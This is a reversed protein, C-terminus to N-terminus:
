FTTPSLTSNKVLWRAQQIATSRRQQPWRASEFPTSRSIPFTYWESTTDAGKQINHLRIAARSSPRYQASKYPPNPGSPSADTIPFISLPYTPRPIYCTKMKGNLKGTIPNQDCSRYLNRWACNLLDFRLGAPTNPVEPLDVPISPSEAPKLFTNELTWYRLM